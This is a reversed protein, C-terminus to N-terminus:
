VASAGAKAFALADAASSIGGCGIIPIRGRTLRYIDRTTALALDRLPPGSLGGEEKAVENETLSQPRSRTTNTTIIGDVRYDMAMQAILRLQDADNDPGIKLVVPPRYDSMANRARIVAKITNELVAVDSSAAINKVNPCSVNIVVYDAYPGLAQIGRVYDDYSDASSTKNKSLNVGLLRDGYASRNGGSALAAVTEGKQQSQAAVLRWFRSRLRDGCVDVGDNNLGMRNITTGTEDVRFLRPKPNGAQASPTVSGVEVSGFGLDFLADVAEANKDFGAALGIPNSVRKGWLTVELLADDNKRDVPHLGHKLSFVALDHATEADLLRMLPTTVYKHVGASADTVYLYGLGGLTLTGAAWVINRATSPPQAKSGFARRGLARRAHSAGSRAAIRFM